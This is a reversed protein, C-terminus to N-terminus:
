RATERRQRFFVCISVCHYLLDSSQVVEIDVVVLEPHQALWSTVREGLEQRGASMAATFVQVGDIREPRVRANPRRSIM